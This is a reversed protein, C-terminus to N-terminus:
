ILPQQNKITQILNESFDEALDIVHDFAERNGYYPDPVEAENHRACYGAALKVKTFLEPSPCIRRLDRVNEQDMALILDFDFFDQSQVKRCRSWNQYGRDRLAKRMRPDPESGVHYDITGASDVILADHLGERQLGARLVAEAAPSRCINGLCVFLLRQVGEAGM